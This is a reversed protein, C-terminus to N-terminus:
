GTRQHARSPRCAGPPARTRPLGSGRDGGHAKLCVGIFSNAIMFKSGRSYTHTFILGRVPPTCTMRGPNCPNGPARSTRRAASRAGLIEDFAGMLQLFPGIESMPMATSHLHRGWGSRGHGCTVNKSEFAGGDVGCGGVYRNFRGCGVKVDGRPMPARGTTSPPTRRPTKPSRSTTRATVKHPRAARASGTQQRRM